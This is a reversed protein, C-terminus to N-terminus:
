CCFRPPTTLLVDFVCYSEQIPCHVPIDENRGCFTYGHLQGQQQCPVKEIFKKWLPVKSAVTLAFLSEHNLLGQFTEIFNTYYCGDVSATFRETENWTRDVAM